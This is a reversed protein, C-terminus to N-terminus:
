KKKWRLWGRPLIGDLLCPQSTPTISTSTTGSSFERYEPKLLPKPPPRPLNPQTVFSDTFLTSFDMAVANRTWFIQSQLDTVSEVRQALQRIDQRTFLHLLLQLQALSKTLM